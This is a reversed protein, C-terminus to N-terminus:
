LFGIPQYNRLHYHGINKQTSVQIIKLLTNVLVLKSGNKTTKLIKKFKKRKIFGKFIKLKEILNLPKLNFQAPHKIWKGNSLNYAVPKHIISESGKKFIEKVYENNTFSLHIFHDFVFQDGVTFNDLLGGWSNNAEYVKVDFKKIDM